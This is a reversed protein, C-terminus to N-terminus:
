RTSSGACGAASTTAWGSPSASPAALQPGARRVARAPLGGPHPPGGQGRHPEQDGPVPHDPGAKLVEEIRPQAGSSAAARWTTATTASTAGTCSPTRPSGSTSSPRRWARAAREPGPGPLRQRRDPHHRGGGPLRLARGALPGGAHRDPDHAPQVHVCVLYRGSRSARASGPRVPPPQPGSRAARPGRRRRGSGRADAAARRGAGDARPVAGAPSRPGRHPPPARQPWPRRRAGGAQRRCPRPRGPTASGHDHQPDSAAAPPRTGAAPQRGRRRRPTPVPETPPQGIESESM